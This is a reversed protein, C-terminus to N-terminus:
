WGQAELQAMLASLDDRTLNQPNTPEVSMLGDTEV